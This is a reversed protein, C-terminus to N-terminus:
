FIWRYITSTWASGFDGNGHNDLFRKLGSAGDIARIQTKQLKYTFEGDPVVRVSKKFVGDPTIKEATLIDGQVRCDYLVGDYEKYM